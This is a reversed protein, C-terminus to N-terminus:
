LGLFNMFKKKNNYPTLDPRSLNPRSGKDVIIELFSPGTSSQFESFINPFDSKKCIKFYKKYSVAKSLLSFDIMDASSEQGGVSDHSFNNLLIHRFNSSSYKGIISLAGMHMILSGDGDICYVNRNKNQLAVGLSVSSVHGMSGVTMLDIGIEGKEKRIEYLERSAKGTTSIVASDQEILDLIRSIAYERSICIEQNPKSISSSYSEFSDKRVLLVQPSDLEKAQVISHHIQTALDQNDSPLITYDLGLLDLMELQIEGDKRHQIADEKGPEGRWGMMILMPIAFIEKDVLSTLPNIANGLGSNQMYVLPIKGTSINYGVAIAISNGENAAIIHNAKSINDDLYFCFHKLTSDPVGTFFEIGENLLIDYLHAPNIKM